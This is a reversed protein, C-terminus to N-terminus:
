LKEPDFGWNKLAIDRKSLGCGEVKDGQEVGRMRAVFSNVEEAEECENFGDDKCSWESKEKRALKLVDNIPERSLSAKKSCPDNKWDKIESPTMNVSDQFEKFVKDLKENKKM